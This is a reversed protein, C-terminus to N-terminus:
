ERIEITISGYEQSSVEQPISSLPELSHKSVYKM